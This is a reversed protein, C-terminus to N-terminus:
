YYVTPCIRTIRCVFYKPGRESPLAGTVSLSLEPVPDLSHESNSTNLFDPEMVYCFSRDVGELAKPKWHLAAPFPQTPKGEAPVM